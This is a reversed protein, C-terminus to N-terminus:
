RRRKWDLAVGIRQDWSGDWDTRLGHAELRTVIDRAVQLAAAEGEECAGYNLYLSGGETARETDQMHYFAYGRAGIAVPQVLCEFRQFGIAHDRALM